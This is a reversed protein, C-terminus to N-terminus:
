FEGEAVVCRTYESTGDPYFVCLDVQSGSRLDNRIGAVIVNVVFHKANAFALDPEQYRSKFVFMAALGGSWLAAYPLNVDTSGHPHIAKFYPIHQYVGDLILNAGIEGQGDYLINQMMRYTAEAPVPITSMGALPGDNDNDHAARFANMNTNINKGISSEGYVIQEFTM